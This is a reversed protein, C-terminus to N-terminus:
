RFFACLERIDRAFSKAGSKELVDRDRFGWLVAVLEVNARAATECDVESDGVYIVEDRTVGLTEMAYFIGDPAPKKPVDAREGLALDFLDPFYHACLERVAADYKNSVIAVAIGRTRLDKLTDVVGPYPATRNLNRKAYDERFFACAQLFRENEIGEPLSRRMLNEVGNGIFRRVEERSRLPYGFHALAANTADALDDLTDLLTGDLDFIVAKLEKM